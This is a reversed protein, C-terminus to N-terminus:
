RFADMQAPRQIARAPKPPLHAPPAYGRVVVVPRGEGGQGMLLAAAAALEDAICEESVALEYGFLDKEGRQDWLPPLGACGICVGVTGIRWARGHSDSIIVAPAIGTLEELRARIGAASADADAPLLTLWEGSEGFAVNSRDVGANACIWGGRQEVVLLGPRARIVANSDALVVQTVRPDKGTTQAMEQAAPTPEVDELRVLRGEAKSVIKQAIVLIDGPELADGQAALHEVILGAVDDGPQILPLGDVAFLTMRSRNPSPHSSPM